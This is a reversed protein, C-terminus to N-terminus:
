IHFSFCSVFNFWGNLALTATMSDLYEVATLRFGGVVVQVPELVGDIPRTEKSYNTFLFNYLDQEQSACIKVFLIPLFIM